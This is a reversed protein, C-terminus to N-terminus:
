IDGRGSAVESQGAQIVQEERQVEVASANKGLKQVDEMKDLM